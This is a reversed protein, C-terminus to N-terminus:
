FLEYQINTPDYELSHAYIYFGSDDTRHTHRCCLWGKGSELLYVIENRHAIWGPPYADAGDDWIDRVLKIKPYM